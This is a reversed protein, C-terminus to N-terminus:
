KPICTPVQPPVHTVDPHTSPAAYVTHSSHPPKLQLSPYEMAPLQLSPLKLVQLLELKDPELLVLLLKPMLQQLDELERDLWMLLLELKLQKLRELIVPDDSIM